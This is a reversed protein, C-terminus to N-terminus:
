GSTNFVWLEKGSLGAGDKNRGNRPKRFLSESQVSQLRSIILNVQSAVEVDILHKSGPAFEFAFSYKIRQLNKELVPHSVPQYHRKWHVFRRRPAIPAPRM